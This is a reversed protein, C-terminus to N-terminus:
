RARVNVASRDSSRLSVLSLLLPFQVETIPRGAPQGIAHTSGPRGFAPKRARADAGDNNKCNKCDVDEKKWM